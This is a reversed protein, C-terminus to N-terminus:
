FPSSYVESSPTVGVLPRGAESWPTRPKLDLLCLLTLASRENLQERPMGLATLVELAEKIKGKVSM